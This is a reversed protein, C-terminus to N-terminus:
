GQVKQQQGQHWWPSPDIPRGEKRFEIYLVPANDQSHGPPAVQMTGVPEGALVFQGLQADIHSLGALLVHYGGGANIILLQGYSRFEGAYVVWGDSPSTIQAGHRTQIVIGQSKRGNSTTDGFSVVTRGHAPMPLKNRALHFPVAPKMRGPPGALPGSGPTLVVAVETEQEKAAPRSAPAKANPGAQQGIAAEKSLQKEYTGLGTKEAVTQDLASILESISDVSQSIRDAERRVAELEGQREGLSHRKEEMLMALRSQAAKLRETESEIKAREEAIQKFLRDLEQLRGILDQVETQLEPIARALLMASRVMELADERRTIIVPPPNRGMRQMAALLSSISSHRQQLAEQHMKQQAVLADRRTEISSLQAESLQVSRAAAQLQENLRAREEEMKALDVKLQKQRLETEKLRKRNQELKQKAETALQSQALAPGTLLLGTALALCVAATQGAAYRRRGDHRAAPVVQQGPARM